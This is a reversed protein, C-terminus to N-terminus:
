EIVDPAAEGVGVPRVTVIPVLTGDLILYAKMSAARVAEALTPALAALLEVAV